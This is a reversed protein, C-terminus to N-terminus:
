GVVLSNAGNFTVATPLQWGIGAINRKTRLSLGGDANLKVGHLVVSSLAVGDDVLPRHGRVNCASKPKIGHLVNGVGSCCLLHWKGNPDTTPSGNFFCGRWHITLTSAAADGRVVDGLWFPTGELASTGDGDSGATPPADSPAFLCTDGPSVDSMTLSSRELAEQQKESMTLGRSPDESDRWTILEVQKAREVLNPMSGGECDPLALVTKAAREADPLDSLQMAEGNAWVEWEGMIADTIFSARAKVLSELSQRLRRVAAVCRQPDYPPRKKKAGVGDAVASGSAEGTGGGGEEARTDEESSDSEQM